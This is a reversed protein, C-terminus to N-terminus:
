QKSSTCNLIVRLNKLSYRLVYTKLSEIEQYEFEVYLELFQDAQFPQPERKEEEGKM